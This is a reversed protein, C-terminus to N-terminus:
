MNTNDNIIKERKSAFVNINLKTENIITHIKNKIKDTNQKWEM